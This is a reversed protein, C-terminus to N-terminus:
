SFGFSCDLHEQSIIVLNRKMVALSSYHPLALKYFCTRSSPLHQDSKEVKYISLRSSLNSFGRTPLFKVSTWFFLLEQRQKMSMGEVVRALSYLYSVRSLTFVIVVLIEWFWCIQDDNERYGYYETHAKWDKVSIAEGSGLLMLDLDKLELSQFFIKQIGRECLIDGFGRTFYSLKAAISKVFCHQILLEVYVERNKSNVIISDDGPCLEVVRRSGFEEFERAFTLGLADSDVSDADTELITKCSKYMAPDADRIDELSIVGGALQLFFVCDFSIGVQVKHMLALAIVRGAFAFYNRHRDDVPASSVIIDRDEVSNIQETKRTLQLCFLTVTGMKAAEQEQSEYLSLSSMEEKMRAAGDKADGQTGELKLLVFGKQMQPLDGVGRLGHSDDRLNLRCYRTWWKEKFYWSGNVLEIATFEVM